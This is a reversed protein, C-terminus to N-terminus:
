YYNEVRWGKEKAISTDCADSGPNHNIRIYYDDETVANSTNSHLNRFLANLGDGSFANISCDMFTLEINHSVDLKSIRNTHCNLHKLNINNSVDLTALQNNPCILKMLRTNKNLDLNSIRNNYCDLDILKTNNSVDLTTLQNMSCSLAWLAINKSLDLVTLQNISCNLRTLAINRSVDLTTLSNESCVLAVLAINNSVDLKSLRNGWCYLFTLKTNKSVDLYSLQMDNCNLYELTPMRSVDLTTLSYFDSFCGFYTINVGTITITRTFTGDYSHNFYSPFQPTYTEIVTGYGWDITITETSGLELGVERCQQMIIVIANRDDNMENNKNCSTLGVSLVIIFCLFGKM